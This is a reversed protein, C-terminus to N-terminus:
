YLDSLLACGFTFTKNDFKSSGVKENWLMKRGPSLRNSIQSFYKAGGETQKGPGSRQKDLLVKKEWRGM